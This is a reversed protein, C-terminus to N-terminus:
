QTPLLQHRPFPVGTWASCPTRTRSLQGPLIEGIQAQSARCPASSRPHKSFALANPTCCHDQAQRGTRKQGRRRAFQVLTERKHSLQGAPLRRAWTGSPKRSERRRCTLGWPGRVFCCLTRFKM